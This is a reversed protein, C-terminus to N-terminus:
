RIRLGIVQASCRSLDYAPAPGFFADADGPPRSKLFIELTWKGLRPNEATIRPRNAAAEPDGTRLLIRWDTQHVDSSVAYPHEWAMQRCFAEASVAFGLDVNCYEGGWFQAAIGASIGTIRGCVQHIDEGSVIGQRLDKLIREVEGPQQVAQYEPKPIRELPSASIRVSKLYRAPFRDDDYEFTAHGGPYSYVERYHQHYLDWHDSELKETWRGSAQLPAEPYDAFRERVAEPTIRRATNIRLTVSGGTGPGAPPPPECEVAELLEGGDPGAGHVAGPTKGTIRAVSNCDLRKARALQAITDFLSAAGASLEAEMPGGPQAGVDPAPRDSATGSRQPRQVFLRYGAAALLLLALPALILTARV